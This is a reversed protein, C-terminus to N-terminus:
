LGLEKKAQEIEDLLEKHAKVCDNFTMLGYGVSGLLYAGLSVIAWLPLISIATDVKPSMELNPFLAAHNLFAFWTALTLLLFSGVRSARTM